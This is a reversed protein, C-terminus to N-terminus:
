SCCILDARITPRIAAPASNASAKNANPAPPQLFLPDFGSPPSPEIPSPGVSMRGASVRSPPISTGGQMAPVFVSPVAQPQLASHPLPKQASPTQQLAAQASPQLVQAAAPETPVHTLRGAPSMGRAGDAHAICGAAVHPSSPFHSPLPPQRLHGAPDSHLDPLHSPSATTLELTHSPEPCHRGPGVRM